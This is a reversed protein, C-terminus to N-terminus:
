LNILNFIKNSKIEYHIEKLCLKIVSCNKYRCVWRLRSKFRNEVLAVKFFFLFCKKFEHLLFIINLLFFGVQFICHECTLNEPLVINFVFMRVMKVVSGEKAITQDTDWLSEITKTKTKSNKILESNGNV